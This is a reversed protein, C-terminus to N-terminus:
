LGFRGKLLYPDRGLPVPSEDVDDLGGFVRSSRSGRVKPITLQQGGGPPEPASGRSGDTERSCARPPGDDDDGEDGDPRKVIRLPMVRRVPPPTVLPGYPHHLDLRPPEPAAPEM